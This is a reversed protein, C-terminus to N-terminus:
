RFIVREEFFKSRSPVQDELELALMEVGRAVLISMDRVRMEVEESHYWQFTHM